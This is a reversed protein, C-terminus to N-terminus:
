RASWDIAPWYRILILFLILIAIILLGTTQLSYIPPKHAQKAAKPAVAVGENYRWRCEGCRGNLAIGHRSALSRSEATKHGRGCGYRAPADKTKAHELRVQQGSFEAFATESNPELLLREM